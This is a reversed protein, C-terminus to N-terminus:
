KMTSLFEVVSDIFPGYFREESLGHNGAFYKCDVHSSYKGLVGVMREAFKRLANHDPVFEDHESYCVLIPIKICSLIPDLEAETLDTSFMDDETLRGTLSLLRSATIPAGYLRGPLISEGKGALELKEAEEKIRPIQSGSPGTTMAERDSIGGQLIIASVLRTADPKGHRMFYLADQAGTSHGLLVINRFEFRTKLFTVHTELEACDTALSRFGFQSWSSSLNVMVLSYDAALLTRSLPETYALAMFGDGLGGILVVANRCAKGGEKLSVFAVLNPNEECVRVLRGDVSSM